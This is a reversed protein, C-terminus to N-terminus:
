RKKRRKFQDAAPCSAWHPSYGWGDAEKQDDTLEVSVVDGSTTVIKEAAGPKAKYLKADADCPMSKGARTRIWIIAAGCAKCTTVNVRM